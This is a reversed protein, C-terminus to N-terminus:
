KKAAKHPRSQSHGQNHSQNHNQSRLQSQNHIRRRSRSLGRRKKKYVNKKPPIDDGFLTPALETLARNYVSRKFYIIKDIPYWYSVWKWGSFEPTDWIDLQIDSEEGVLELLFWIQKQGICLPHNAPKRRILHPPLRYHLWSATKGLVNVHHPLLGIEEKLERYMAEQPSENYDIGGQPFQWSNVGGVRRGWFLKQDRNCLIIGVNPRFGNQDIM